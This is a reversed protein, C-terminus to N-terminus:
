KSKGRKRYPRGRLSLLCRMPYNTKITPLKKNSNVFGTMPNDFYTIPVAIFFHPDDVCATGRPKAAVRM